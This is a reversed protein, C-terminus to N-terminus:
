RAIKETATETEGESDHWVDCEDFWGDRRHRPGRESQKSNGSAHLRRTFSTLVKSM